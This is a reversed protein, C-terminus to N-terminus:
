VSAYQAVAAEPGVISLYPHSLYKQAAQQATVPTVAAIAQQYHLDYDIGLGLIECWGLLTAIQANTQKGLAHQGLIKGQAVQIEPATLPADCLRQVEAQLGSKAIATNAADTGMYVVFPAPHVRSPFFSSVEYALGRKERLEVFLRSSLGSGLYTNLVRLAPYEPAQVATALYGVMVLSQQSHYPLAQTQPQIVLEPLAVGPLPCDPAQWDAFESEVLAIAAAPTIRGAMSIVLNDPRFHTRHFQQLDTPQLQSVTAASGLGSHSYPHDQGYIAQRLQAIGLAMPQEQQSRLAQLTLNRELEIQDTDFRPSRLIEAVLRLLAAFDASVTKLSVLFYDATTDTGLGAGVSEVQTAIEAASYTTTGKTLVAALLHSLGFQAPTELSSGARLFFRAAVIDAVPNETVVVTLGNSLVFRQSPLASAKYILQDSM